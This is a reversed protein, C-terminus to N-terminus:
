NQPCPFVCFIIIQRVITDAAIRFKGTKNKPIAKTKNAQLSVPQQRFTNCKVTLM